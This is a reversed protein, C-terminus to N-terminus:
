APPTSRRGRRRRRVLPSHERERDRADRERQEALVADSDAGLEDARRRAREEPSATLFVKVPPTRASSRASTAARPSGTARRRAARAAQRVLAARVGPDASVQSAAASVEPTRIADRSTAGTSCCATASSSRRRRAGRRRRRDRRAVRARRLPVDRRLRPLHLGAREAVARAVTSKGAGAPGDIAIVMARAFALRDARALDAAFGPYCVAAAEM